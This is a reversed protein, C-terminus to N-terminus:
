RLLFMAVLAPIWGLRLLRLSQLIRRPSPRNTPTFTAHAILPTVLLIVISYYVTKHPSLTGALIMLILTLALLLRTALVSAKEGLVTTITPAGVAMDASRDRITKFIEFALMYFFTGAIPAVIIAAPTGAAVAGFLVSSACLTAVALNGVIPIGKLWESYSLSAIALVIAVGLLSASVLAACSLGIAMCTATFQCALRSSVRGSPLPRDPNSIADGQIDKLDNYTNAAAIISMLSIGPLLIPGTWLTHPPVLYTGLLVEIFGAFCTHPRALTLLSFAQKIAM